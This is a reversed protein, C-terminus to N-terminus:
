SEKFLHRGGVGAMINRFILYILYKFLNSVNFRINFYVNHRFTFFYRIFQYSSNKLYGTM